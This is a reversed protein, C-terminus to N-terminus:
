ILDNGMWLITANLFKFACLPGQSIHPAIAHLSIDNNFVSRHLTSIDPGKLYIQIVIQSSM